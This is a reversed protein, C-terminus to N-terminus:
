GRQVRRPEPAILTVTPFYTRYRTADRTLIRYGRVASHAGTYFDPLPSRKQGTRQCDDIVADHVPEAQAAPPDNADKEKPVAAQSLDADRMASRPMQSVTIVDADVGGTLKLTRAARPGPTM